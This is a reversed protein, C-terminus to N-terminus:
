LMPRYDEAIRFNSEKAVMGNTVEFRHSLIVPLQIRQLAAVRQGVTNDALKRVHFM